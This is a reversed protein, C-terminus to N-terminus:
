QLHENEQLHLIKNHWLPIAVGHVDSLLVSLSFYLQGVVLVGPLPRPVFDHLVLDDVVGNLLPLDEHVLGLCLAIM